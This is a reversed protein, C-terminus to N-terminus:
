KNLHVRGIEKISGCDHNGKSNSSSYSVHKCYTNTNINKKLFIYGEVARSFNKYNNSM